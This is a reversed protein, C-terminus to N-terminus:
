RDPFCPTPATNGCKTQVMDMINFGQESNAMVWRKSVPDCVMHGNEILEYNAMGAEPDDMPASIAAKAEATYTELWGVFQSAKDGCDGCSFVFARVGEKGSPATIPPLQDSTATFLVEDATDMFYVDVIRSPNNPTLTMIIVGLSILLLVVAIITVAASNQNMWERLNM